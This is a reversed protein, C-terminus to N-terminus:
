GKKRRRNLYHAERAAALPMLAYGNNTNGITFLKGEYLFFDYRKARLRRLLKEHLAEPVHDMM